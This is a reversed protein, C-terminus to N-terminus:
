MIVPGIIKYGTRTRLFIEKSHPIHPAQYSEILSAVFLFLIIVYL